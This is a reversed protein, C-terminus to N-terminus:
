NKPPEIVEKDAPSINVFRSYYEKDGWQNVAEEDIQPKDAAFSANECANDYKRQNFVVRVRIEVTNGICKDALKVEGDATQEIFTIEFESKEGKQLEQFEHYHSKEPSGALADFALLTFYNSTNQADPNLQTAIYETTAKGKYEGDLIEFNVALYGKETLKGSGTVKAQYIGEPLKVYEKPENIEIGNIPIIM